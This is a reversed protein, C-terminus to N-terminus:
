RSAETPTGEGLAAVRLRAHRALVTPLAPDDLAHRLAINAEATRGLAEASVALGFWHRGREPHREVLERYAALAEPHRQERQLLAARLSHLESAEALEPLPAELLALAASAGELELELRAALMWLAPDLPKTALGPELWARARAPLGAELLRTAGRSYLSIRTPDLALGRSWADIGADFRQAAFLQEGELVLQSALEDNSLPADPTWEPESEVPARPPTLPAIAAVASAVPPPSTAEAQPTKSEPEAPIPGPQEAALSFEPPVAPAPAAPPPSSVSPLTLTDSAEPEVMAEPAQGRFEPAPDATGFVIWSVAAIGCVALSAHGVCIWALRRLNRRGSAAQLGTTRPHLDGQGSRRDLDELMDNVLSM